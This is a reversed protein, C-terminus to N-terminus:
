LKWDKCSPSSKSETSDTFAPLQPSNSKPQTMSQDQRSKETTWILSGLASLKSKHTELILYIPYNQPKKLLSCVPVVMTFDGLVEASTKYLCFFFFFCFGLFM